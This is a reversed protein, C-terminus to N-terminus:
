GNVPYPIKMIKKGTMPIKDCQYEFQLGWFSIKQMNDKRAKYRSATTITNNSGSGRVTTVTARKGVECGFM